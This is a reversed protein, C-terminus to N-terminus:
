PSLYNQHNSLLLWPSAASKVSLEATGLACVCTSTDVRVCFGVGRGLAAPFM